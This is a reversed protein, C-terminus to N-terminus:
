FKEHQPKYLNVLLWKCFKLPPPKTSTAFNTDCLELFKCTPFKCLRLRHTYVPESGRSTPSRHSGGATPWPRQGTPWPRQGPSRQKVLLRRGNTPARDAVGSWCDTVAWARTERGRGRGVEKGGFKKFHPWSKRMPELVHGGHRSKEKFSGVDMIKSGYTDWFANKKGHLESRSAHECFTEFFWFITHAWTVSVLVLKDVTYVNLGKPTLSMLHLSFFNMIPFCPLVHSLPSM